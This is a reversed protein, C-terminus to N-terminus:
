FYFRKIEEQIEKAIIETFANYLVSNRGYKGEGRGEKKCLNVFFKLHENKDGRTQKQTYEWNSILRQQQEKNFRKVSNLTIIFHKSEEEFNFSM